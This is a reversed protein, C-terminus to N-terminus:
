PSRRPARYPTSALADVFRVLLRGFEDREDRTWGSFVDDLHQARVADVRTAASRGAATAEVGAGDRRRIMREGELLALQRSVAGVDM